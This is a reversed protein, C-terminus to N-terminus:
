ADQCCITCRISTGSQNLSGDRDQIRTAYMYSGSNGYSQDFNSDICIRGMPGPHGHHSGFLYGVYAATFGSPCSTRGELRVCTPVEAFCRACRTARTRPLGTGHNHDISIQYLLDLGTTGPDSGGNAGRPICEAGQAGSHSHHTAYAMGEYLRRHGNPCDGRGWHTYVHGLNKAAESAVQSSLEDKVAKVAGSIDTTASAAMNSFSNAAATLDGLADTGFNELPAIDREVVNSLQRRSNSITASLVRTAETSAEAMTEAMESLSTAAYRSVDATGQQINGVLSGLRTTAATDATTMIGRLADVTQTLSASAESQAQQVGQMFNSLIESTLDNIYTEDV